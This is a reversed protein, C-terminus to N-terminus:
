TMGELPRKTACEAVAHREQGGRSAIAHALLHDALWTVSEDTTLNHDAKPIRSRTVNPYARLGAEGRGFHKTLEDESLDNECTVLSIKVDRARLRGFLQHVRQGIPGRLRPIFPSLHAKIKDLVREVVVGALRGVEVRGSLLKMLGDTETLRSFYTLNSRSFYKVFEEVGYAEDWVFVVPNVIVIDDVRRDEVATHFAQYAGSCVGVLTIERAGRALLWDIAASTEEMQHPSYINDAADLRAASDGVGSTDIRLSAVGHRALSRAQEVTMRRWGTHPNAGCNLFLLLRGRRPRTPECFVGYLKRPGFRFRTEAFWEAELVHDAGAPALRADAAAEPAHGIARVWSTVEDFTELPITRIPPATTLRDYDGYERREVVAGLRELRDALEASHRDGARGVVLASPAPARGAALFDLQKVDAVFSAPLKFGLLALGESAGASPTVGAADALMAASVKLQKLFPGGRAFGALLALGVINDLQESARLAVAAGLGQGILVLREARSLDILLAAASKAATVWDDFRGMRETAGLSDGTGPYDFRLTPFGADALNDALERLSARM